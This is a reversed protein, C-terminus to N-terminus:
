HKRKNANKCKSYRKIYKHFKKKKLIVTKFNEWIKLVVERIENYTQIIGDAVCQFVEVIENYNLTKDM